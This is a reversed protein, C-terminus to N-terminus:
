GLIPVERRCKGGLEYIRPVRASLGCTIEYPITGAMEAWDWPTIEEGGDRGLLTVADGERADIGELSVVSLDMSIRGRFPAKKGKIIVAGGKESLIRPLGDAYGVPLLALKEEKDTVYTASYGVESGPPLIKIQEIRTEYRLVPELGDRDLERAPVMGYMALGPRVLGMRTEPHFLLGASNALHVLRPRVGAAELRAVIEMFVAAQRKTQDWDPHDASALASFVGEVVINNCCSLKRILGDVQESRFGLRGMGSDIKIHVRGKARLKGAAREVADVNPLRYLCPMLGNELAAPIEEDALPGLVLIEERIGAKRLSIGEYITAVGFHDALGKSSLARSIPVAGLGYCNAKVVAMVPKGGSLQKLRSVNRCIADISIILRTPRIPLSNM